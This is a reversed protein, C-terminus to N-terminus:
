ALDSDALMLFLPVGESMWRAPVEERFRYGMAFPERRRIFGARRLAASTVPDNVKTGVVEVGEAALRGILLTLLDALRKIGGTPHEDLRALADVIEM